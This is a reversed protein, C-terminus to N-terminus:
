IFYIRFPSTQKQENIANSLPKVRHLKPHCVLAEYLNKSFPLHYNLRNLQPSTIRPPAVVERHNQMMWSAKLETEFM